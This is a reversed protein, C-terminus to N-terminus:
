ALSVKKPQQRDSEFTQKCVSCNKQETKTALAVERSLSAGKTLLEIGHVPLLVFSNSRNSAQLQIPQESNCHQLKNPTANANQDFAYNILIIRIAWNLHLYVVSLM